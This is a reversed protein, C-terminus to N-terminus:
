DDEEKGEGILVSRVAERVNKWAPKADIARDDVYVDALVKDSADEPQDPNENIYDYPIDHDFLWKRTLEDDGRVTNIIIRYGKRQWELMTKRAGPRPDEIKKPDFKDYMKALTGDLDVAVTPPRDKAAKRMEGGGAENEEDEDEQTPVVKILKNFARSVARPDEAEMNKQLLDRGWNKELQRDSVGMSKLIPYLKLTSQGLGLRFIGTDPEMYVRFSQGTGPRVNVHAELVGNDKVRTYVGPKLRMQNAISYENGRYIFTNRNTLFPVHAITARRKDMITGTEKDELTWEGELRRELSEGRMISRKQESTSFRDPGVWKVNQLTLRHRENEVPYRGQIAKLLNSDLAKRTAPADDFARYTVPEPAVPLDLSDAVTPAPPKPAQPALIDGVNKQV